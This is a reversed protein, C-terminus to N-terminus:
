EDRVLILRIGGLPVHDGADGALDGGAPFRVRIQLDQQSVTGAGEAMVGCFVQARAVVYVARLFPQTELFHPRGGMGEVLDHQFFHGLDTRGTM